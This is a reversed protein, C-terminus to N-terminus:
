NGSKEVFFSMSVALMFEIRCPKREIRWCHVYFDRQLDPRTTPPLCLDICADIFRIGTDM